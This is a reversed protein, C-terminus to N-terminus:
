PNVTLKQIRNNGTDAVYLNGKADLAIGRPAKFQGPQDGPLVETGFRGTNGWSQVFQGTSSLKQIRHNGTDAVYLNGQGDFAISTPDNFQGPGTGKTGFQALPRGGNVSLKQIRNNGRDTVYVNGQGDLAIASLHDFQGPGTGFSGWRSLLKMDPGLKVVTSGQLGYLAGFQDGVIEGVRESIMPTQMLSLDPKRRTIAYNEESGKKTLHPVLINGSFEIFFDLERYIGFNGVTSSVGLESVGIEYASV